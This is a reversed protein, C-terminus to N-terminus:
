EGKEEEKSKKEISKIKEIIDLGAAMKGADEKSEMSHIAEKMVKSIADITKENIDVTQIVTLLSQAM